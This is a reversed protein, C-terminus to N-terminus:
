PRIWRILYRFPFRPVVEAGQLGAKHALELAEARTFAGEVSSRGDLRCIDSLLLVSTGLRAFWYSMPSRVLDQIVM